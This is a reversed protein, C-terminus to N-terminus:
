RFRGASQSLTRALGAAGGFVSRAFLFLSAPFGKLVAEASMGGSYVGVLWALGISVLGVNVQTAISLVIALLLALLALLAPSM